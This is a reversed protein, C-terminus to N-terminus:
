DVLVIRLLYLYNTSLCLIDGKLEFVQLDVADPHEEVFKNTAKVNEHSIYPLNMKEIIEDANNPTELYSLYKGGTMFGVFGKENYGILNMSIETSAM